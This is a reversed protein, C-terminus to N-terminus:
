KVNKEKKMWEEILGRIIEQKNRQGVLSIFEDAMKQTMMLSTKIDLKQKPERKQADIDIMPSRTYYFGGIPRKDKMAKLVDDMLVKTDRQIEYLAGYKKSFAHTQENWQYIM